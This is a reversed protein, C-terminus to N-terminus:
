LKTIFEPKIFHNTTINEEGDMELNFAELWKVGCNTDILYLYNDKTKQKTAGSDLADAKTLYFFSINYYGFPDEISTNPNIGIEDLNPLDSVHYVKRPVKGEFKSPIDKVWICGYEVNHLIWKDPFGQKFKQILDDTIEIGFNKINFETINSTIQSGQTFIEEISQLSELFSYYKKIQM